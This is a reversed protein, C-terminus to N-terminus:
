RFVKLTPTITPISGIVDQEATWREVSQALVATTLACKPDFGCGGGGARCTLTRSVSRFRGHNVCVEKKKKLYHIIDPSYMLQTVRTFFKNNVM